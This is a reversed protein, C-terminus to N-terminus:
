VTDWPLSQYYNKVLEYVEAFDPIPEEIEQQLNPYELRSKRIVEAHNISERDVNMERAKAKFRLSTLVREKEEVSVCLGKQLLRYLDYADQRRVRNRTEQQLLARYKEAVVEILNYVSLSGGDTLELAVIDESNPENFSYDVEVVSPCQRNLLRKHKKVDHKYAYGIRIKLTPMTADPRPPKREHSQIQCDLSYDLQEVALALATSFERIFTELNFEKIERPTSFDIDRTHRSSHYQLALLIGGKMIMETRLHPTNAIAVLVTHVAERFEREAPEKAANIWPQIDYANM